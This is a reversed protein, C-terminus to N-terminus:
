PLGNQFWYKIIILKHLDTLARFSFGKFLSFFPIITSQYFDGMMSQDNNYIISQKEFWVFVYINFSGTVGCKLFRIKQKCWFTRGWKIPRWLTRMSRWFPVGLGSCPKSNWLCCQTKITITLWWFNTRSTARSRMWSRARRFVHTSIQTTVRARVKRTMLM